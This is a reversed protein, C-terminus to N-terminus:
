RRRYSQARAHFLKGLEGADILQKAVKTEPRYISHLQIHLMKDYEEAAEVMKKGDYYTGAIPKECYVHKGAKMAEISVPAHLNNHLCVDVAVIDDRQLMERFDTYVHQVGFEEAVKKAEAENVDCVAVIEADPIQAYVRLHMKGILGTGIIGIKVKSMSMVGIM